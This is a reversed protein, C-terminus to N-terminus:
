YGYTVEKGVTFKSPPIITKVLGGNYTLQIDYVYDTFDLDETDKPVIEIVAKEGTVGTIKKSLLIDGKIWRRVTFEIVDEAKLTYGSFNIGIIENDGRTMTINTGEVIM